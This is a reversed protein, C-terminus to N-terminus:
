ARRLNSASKELASRGGLQDLTLNNREFLYLLAYGNTRKTIKLDYRTLLTNRRKLAESDSLFPPM